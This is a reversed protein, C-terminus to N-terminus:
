ISAPRASTSSSDPDLFARDSASVVCDVLMRRIFEESGPATARTLERTLPVLAALKLPQLATISDFQAASVPIAAGSGVWNASAAGTAIPVSVGSPARKASLRSLTESERVSSLFDSAIGSDALTAAWTAANGATVASKHLTAGVLPMGPWAKEAYYAAEMPSDSRALAICYRAFAMGRPASTVAPM